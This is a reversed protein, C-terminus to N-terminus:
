ARKRKAQASETAKTINNRANLMLHKFLKADLNAYREKLKHREKLKDQKTGLWAFNGELLRDDYCKNLGDLLTDVAESSLWNYEGNNMLELVTLLVDDRNAPASRKVLRITKENCHQLIDVLLEREYLWSPSPTTSPTLHRYHWFAMARKFVKPDTRTKLCGPLAGDGAVVPNLTALTEAAMDLGLYETEATDPNSSTVPIQPRSSIEERSWAGDQRVHHDM